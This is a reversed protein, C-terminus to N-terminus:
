KRFACPKGTLDPIGVIEILCGFSISNGLKARPVEVSHCGVAEIVATQLTEKDTAAIAPHVLLRNTVWHDVARISRCIVIDSMWVLARRFGMDVEPNTVPMLKCIADVPTNLQIHVVNTFVGMQNGNRCLGISSRRLITDSRACGPLQGVRKRELNSYRMFERARLTGFVPKANRARKTNLSLYLSKSRKERTSGEELHNRNATRGLLAATDSTPPDQM